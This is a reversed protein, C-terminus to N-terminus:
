RSNAVPSRRPSSRPRFHTSMSKSRPSRRTRRCIEQMFPSTISAGRFVFFAWRVRGNASSATLTRNFCFFFAPLLGHTNGDGLPPGMERVADQVHEVPHQFPRSQGFDPEMIEPMCEGGQGQLVSHVDLRHGPHQTVVRRAEGQVGVGMHGCRGLFLRRSGHSLHQRVGEPFIRFCLSTRARCLRM